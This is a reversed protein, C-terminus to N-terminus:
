EEEGWGWKVEEMVADIYVNFLWFYMICGYRVFSDIRFCKREGGKVRVYPLSNIDM